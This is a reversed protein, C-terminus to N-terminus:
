GCTLFLGYYAAPCILKNKFDTSDRVTITVVFCYAKKTSYYWCIIRPNTVLALLGLLLGTETADQAQQKSKIQTFRYKPM